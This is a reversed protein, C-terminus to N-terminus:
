NWGYSMAIQKPRLLLLLTGLSIAEVGSLWRHSLPTSAMDSTLFYITFELTAAATRLV